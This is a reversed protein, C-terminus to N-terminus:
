PNWPVPGYAAPSPWLTDLTDGDYLVGGKMVSAVDASNRIDDLPNADLIVLDALKGPEISGIENELGVFHAGHLTGVTLAELPSLAEAYAWLEWHEGMGPQNGHEGIAGYGGARVIDALGEAIMPFSFNSLELDRMNAHLAQNM